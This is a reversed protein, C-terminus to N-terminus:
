NFFFRYLSLMCKAPIRHGTYSYCCLDAGLLTVYTDLKIFAVTAWFFTFKCEMMVLSYKISVYKSTNKSSIDTVIQLLISLM